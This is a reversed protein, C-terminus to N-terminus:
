NILFFCREFSSVITSITSQNGEKNDSAVFPYMQSMVKLLEVITPHISITEITSNERIKRILENAQDIIESVLPIQTSNNSYLINMICTVFTNYIDSFVFSCFTIEHAVSCHIRDQLVSLIKLTKLYIRKMDNNNQTFSIQSKKELVKLLTRAVLQTHILSEEFSNPEENEFIKRNTSNNLNMCERSAFTYSSNNHTSDTENHEVQVANESLKIEQLNQQILAVDNENADSFSSQSSPAIYNINLNNLSYSHLMSLMKQTILNSTSQNQDFLSLLNSYSFELLHLPSSNPSVKTTSSPISHFANILTSSAASRVDPDIDQILSVCTMYLDLCRAKLTEDEIYLKRVLTFVNSIHIAHAVNYRLIWESHLQQTNEKQLVLPSLEASQIIVDIFMIIKEQLSKSLSTKGYCDSAIKFAMLEISNGSLSNGTSFFSSDNNEIAKNNIDQSGGLKRLKSLMCWHQEEKNRDLDMEENNNNNNNNNNSDCKITPYYIPRNVERPKANKHALLCEILCKTLRRLSPTHPTKMNTWDLLVNYLTQALSELLKTSMEYSDDYIIQSFQKKFAKMASFRVDFSTHLLLTSLKDLVKTKNLDLHLFLQKTLICTAIEAVECSAQAMGILKETIELPCENMIRLHQFVITEVYISNKQEVCNSSTHHHYLIRLAIIMCSPPCQLSFDFFTSFKHLIPALNMEAKNEGSQHTSLPLLLLYEIAILVGHCLNWNITEMSDIEGILYTLISTRSTNVEEEERAGDNQTTTTVDSTCLCALARAAMIRIKNHRSSLLNVIPLIFSTVVQVTSNQDQPTSQHAPLLRSLLLLSSFTSTEKQSSLTMLLFESLTPYRRFLDLATIVNNSSTQIVFSSSTENRDMIPTSRISSPAIVNRNANKDSDVVRLVCASFVMTSSNQINWCKEKEDFSSGYDMDSGLMSSIIADGVFITTYESLPADLICARLINLAHVRTKWSFSTQENIEDPASALHKPYIFFSKEHNTPLSLKVLKALTSTIINQREKKKSSSLSRMICLFGLAYGTSRRLTSDHVIEEIRTIERFLFDKMFQLPLESLEERQSCFCADCIQQLSEHATFSTGQHKMSTLTKLLLIGANAIIECSIVDDSICIITSLTKMAERTLLWSGMIVRQTEDSKSEAKSKSTDAFPANAGITSANLNL